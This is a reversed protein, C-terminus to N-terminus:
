QGVSGETNGHANFVPLKVRETTIHSKGVDSVITKFTLFVDDFRASYCILGAM